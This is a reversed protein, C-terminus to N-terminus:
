KDLLEENENRKIESFITEYVDDSHIKVLGRDLAETLAEVAVNVMEQKTVEGTSQKFAVVTVEELGFEGKILLINKYVRSLLDDLLM